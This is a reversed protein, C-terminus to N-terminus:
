DSSLPWAGREQMRILTILTALKSTSGQLLEREEIEKTPLWEFKCHEGGPGLVVEQDDAYGMFMSSEVRKITADQEITTKKFCGVRYLGNVCLQIGIEQWTERIAAEVPSEGPELEGGAFDLGGPRHEDTLSRTLILLRGSRDTVAVKAARYSKVAPAEQTNIILAEM